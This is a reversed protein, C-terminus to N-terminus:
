DGGTDNCRDEYESGVLFHKVPNNQDHQEPKDRSSLSKIWSEGRERQIETEKETGRV